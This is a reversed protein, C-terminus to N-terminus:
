YHMLHCTKPQALYIILTCVDLLIGFELEIVEKIKKEISKSKVYEKPLCEKLRLFLLVALEHVAIKKSCDTDALQNSNVRFCNILCLLSELIFLWVRM